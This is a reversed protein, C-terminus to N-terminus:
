FQRRKIIVPAHLLQQVNSHVFAFVFHVTPPTVTTVKNLTKEYCAKKYYHFAAKNVKQFAPKKM